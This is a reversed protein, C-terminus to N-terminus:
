GEEGVHGARYFALDIEFRDTPNYVQEEIGGLIIQRFYTDRLNSNGRNPIRIFNKEPNTTTFLVFKSPLVELPRLNHATFVIQGCASESLVKLIEGLLYEFIGADIEDIVVTVSPDNYAAILLIMISVIKKIGDSEMGLPMKTGNRCSFLEIAISNPYPVFFTNSDPQVEQVEITLGPVVKSLVIGIQKITNKVRPFVEKPVCNITDRQLNIRYPTYKDDVRNKRIMVLPINGGYVLGTTSTGIVHFCEISFWRLSRLALMPMSFVTGYFLKEAEEDSLEDTSNESSDILDSLTDHSFFEETAKKLFQESEMDKVFPELLEQFEKMFLFSAGMQSAKKKLEVAKAMNAKDDNLLIMYKQKSGFAIGMDDSQTKRTDFWAQKAVVVKGEPTSLRFKVVENEIALGAFSEKADTPNLKVVDFNYYAEVMLATDPKIEKGESEVLSVTLLFSVEFSSKETGLRITKEDERTLQEGSMVRKILNLAMIVSTKGSGNQGYIGLISPSNNLVAEYDSNPFAISAHKISRFNELTLKTIRVDFMNSILRM